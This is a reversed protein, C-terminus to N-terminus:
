FGVEELARAENEAQIRMGSEGPGHGVQPSVQSTVKTLHRGGPPETRAETPVLLGRSRVSGM